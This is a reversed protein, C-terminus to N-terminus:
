VSMRRLRDNIARGIGTEPVTEALLFRGPLTDLERVMRFLNAAAETLDGSTSLIRERVPEAHYHERFSLVVCEKIPHIQLLEPINGLFVKKRPAYHSELMGPALPRSSSTRVFLEGSIERVWEEPIGGQRLLEASGDENVRIITSEVGVRCSGGDVIYDLQNGLQENVHDATTPSVYGFPNASPAALPFSLNRLLSLTQPHDPVRFGATPLGSTVLDPIIDKKPLILTLPGPWFRTAITEAVEPFHTVYHRIQEVSACHIILPDFSPRQKAEFIRAVANANLANGALGYVTETPVAVLGGRKLIEAALIIDTGIRAM